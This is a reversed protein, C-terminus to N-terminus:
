KAAALLQGMLDFRKGLYESGEKSFHGKDRYLFLDGASVKCLDDSCVLQELEFLGSSRSAQKLYDTSQALLNASPSFNCEGLDTASVYARALCLGTDESNKPAPAVVVVKKGLAQIQAITNELSEIGTRGSPYVQGSTKLGNGKPNLADDWPSALIVTGIQDQTKLWAFVSDNQAMCELGQDIGTSENQHAWGLIPACASFAQQTFAAETPSAELGQALHM